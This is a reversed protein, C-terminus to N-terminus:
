RALLVRVLLLDCSVLGGSSIGDEISAQRLPVSAMLWAGVALESCDELTAIDDASPLWFSGELYIFVIKLVWFPSRTLVITV